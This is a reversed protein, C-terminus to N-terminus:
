ISRLLKITMDPLKSVIVRVDTPLFPGLDNKLDRQDWEGISKVLDEFTYKEQYFDLKRQIFSSDFDVNRALLFYLDYLDRGKKRKLIARVKEALIEKMSLHPIPTLISFPYDTKPTSIVPDLVQDRDSFDLKIGTPYPSLPTQIQIKRSLGALTELTKVTINPFEHRLNILTNTIHNDIEQAHLDTSFDLDESFRGSGFMIRLCTGGKFYTNKLKENRYFLLLFAAQLYERFISLKDIRFLRSYQNLQDNSLM